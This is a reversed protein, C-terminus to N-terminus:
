IGNLTFAYIRMAVVLAIDFKDAIDLLSSIFNYQTDKYM